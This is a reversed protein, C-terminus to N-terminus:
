GILRNDSIFEFLERHLPYEILSLTKDIEVWQFKDHEFSLKVDRSDAEGAYFLFIIIRGDRGETKAYIIDLSDAPIDLGTEENIERAVADAYNETEEVAGGPIDWQLPRRTDTNSRRILLVETGNAVVAKAVIRHIKKLM